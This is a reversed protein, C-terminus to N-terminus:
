RRRASSRRANQRKAPPREGAAAPRSCWRSCPAPRPCVSFDPSSRSPPIVRPSASRHGLINEYGAAHYGAQALANRCRGEPPQQLRAADPDRGLLQIRVDIRIRSGHAGILVPLNVHGLVARFRIQIQAVVLAEDVLIQVPIGVQGGALDVRIHDPLFTLAAIQAGRDLGDGVDRVLDLAEDVPDPLFGARVHDDGLDAARDAIDLALGEDLCDTLDTQLGAPLVRQVDVDRQHGIQLGAPLVFGLGGLVAHLLQLAHADARVDDHQPRVLLDGVFRDEGLDGM